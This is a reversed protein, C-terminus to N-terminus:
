EQNRGLCRTLLLSRQIVMNECPQGAPLLEPREPRHRSTLLPTASGPPLGGAASRYPRGHRPHAPVEGPLDGAADGPGALRGHAAAPILRSAVLPGPRSASRAPDPPSAAGPDPGPRLRRQGTCPAAPTGHGATGTGSRGRRHATRVTHRSRTRQDRPSRAPAATAPAPREAAPVARQIVRQGGPLDIFLGEGPQQGSRQRLEDVALFAM